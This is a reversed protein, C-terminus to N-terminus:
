ISICVFFLIFGTPEQTHPTPGALPANVDDNGLGLLAAVGQVLAAAHEGADRLHNVVVGGALQGEVVGLM